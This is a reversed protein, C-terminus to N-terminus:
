MCKHLVCMIWVYWIREVYMDCVFTCGNSEEPQHLSLQSLVPPEQVDEKEHSRSGRHLRADVQGPLVAQRTGMIGAREDAPLRHSEM